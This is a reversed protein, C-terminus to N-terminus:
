YSSSDYSRAKRNFCVGRAQRKDSGYRRVKLQRLEEM